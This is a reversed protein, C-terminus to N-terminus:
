DLGMVSIFQVPWRGTTQAEEKSAPIGMPREKRLRGEGGHLANM